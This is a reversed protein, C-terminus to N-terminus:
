RSMQSMLGVGPSGAALQGKEEARRHILERLLREAIKGPLNEDLAAAHEGYISIVKVRKGVVRYRAPHRIGDIVVFFDIGVM